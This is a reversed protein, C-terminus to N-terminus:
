DDSETGGDATAAGEPLATPEGPRHPLVAPTPEGDDSDAGSELTPTEQREDTGDTGSSLAPTEQKGDDLAPTDAREDGATTEFAALLEGLRQAQGALSDVSEKVAAMRETQARADGAASDAATATETSVQTVTELQSMVAQTSDAQDATARDIERIGDVTEDIDDVISDFADLADEITESGAEVKERADHMEATTTETQAKLDEITREIEGTANQTEDVLNKIEDAVVAFGDGDSDAHAAEISANLALMNSQEAIDRIIDVVAEIDAVLDDLQEVQTAARRTRQEIADLEEMAAAAAERGAEGNELVEGAVTAVENTSASAEQVSASLDQMEDRVTQLDTAQSTADDAITEMGDALTASTERAETVSTAVGGSAGEVAEGFDRVQRITEEWEDMMENYAVAIDAMADSEADTPLRCSLDGEAVEDMVSGFEAATAELQDNLEVANQRAREADERATQARQQAEEARERAAEAEAIQDRLSTRMSDFAAFLDGFEDNRDTELNVDLNGEEIAKARSTLGDLTDGVRRGLGVAVGGLVVLGILLMALMSTGVTDRMAFASQKPVHTVVTWDTGAVTAYGLMESGNTASGNAGIRSAALTANGGAMGSGVVFSGDSRRITTYGGEATQAFSDTRAETNAVMVIAHETNRPPSSLFAIVQDGNSLSNYPDTAVHVTGYDNTKTDITELNAAWPVKGQVTTGQVSTATSAEIEGTEMDVYHVASVDDPLATSKEFLYSQVTGPDGQQFQQATSFTKTRERLGDVWASLSDAQLRATSSVRDEVQSEVQQTASAYQVVGIGAMLVMALLVVAVFKRAFRRRVFEPVIRALVASVRGGADPSM